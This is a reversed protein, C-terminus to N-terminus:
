SGHLHMGGRLLHAAVIAAVILGALALLRAVKPSRGGPREPSSGAAGRLRGWPKFISLMTATLLVVLALSADVVLQAGLRGATPLADPAAGAVLRAAGAVATFQHLVLLLTAGVTLIFKVLVWYYRVLGWETGVAQVLGTLLAAFSLPVLVWAGTLNMALYAARVTAGERSTLGAISLMLFVLVAGLWGVSAVVHAVLGIKRQHHTLTM